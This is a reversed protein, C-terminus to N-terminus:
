VPRRGGRVGAIVSTPTNGLSNVYGDALAASLIASLVSPDVTITDALFISAQPAPVLLTNENGSGDVFTITAVDFVSPFPAVSGFAGVNTVTGGTSQFVGANSISMLEADLNGFPASSYNNSM